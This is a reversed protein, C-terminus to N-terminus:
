KILGGAILGLVAIGFLGVTNLLVLFVVATAIAAFIKMNRNSHDEKHESQIAPTTHLNMVDVQQRELRRVRRTKPKEVTEKNQEKPHIDQKNGEARLRENEHKLADIEAQMKTILDLDQTVEKIENRQEM